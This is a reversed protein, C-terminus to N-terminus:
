EEQAIVAKIIPSLSQIIKETPTKKVYKRKPPAPPKDAAKVYKRKPKPPEAFLNKLNPIEYPKDAAKVYKRKPKPPEIPKTKRKPFTKAYMKDFVSEHHDAVWMKADAEIEGWPINEFKSRQDFTTKTGCWESRPIGKRKWTKADSVRRSKFAKFAAFVTTMTIQSYTQM